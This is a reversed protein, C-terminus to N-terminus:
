DHCVGEVADAETTARVEGDSIQKGDFIGRTPAPNKAFGTKSPNPDTGLRFPWLECRLVTCHRVEAMEGGSCDICKRRVAKLIETKTTM